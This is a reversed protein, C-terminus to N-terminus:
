FTPPNTNSSGQKFSIPRTGTMKRGKKSSSMQICVSHFGGGFPFMILIILCRCYKCNKSSCSPASAWCTGVFTLVAVAVLVVQEQCIASTMWGCGSIQTGANEHHPLWKFLKLLTTSVQSKRYPDFGESISVLFIQIGFEVLYGFRHVKPQHFCNQSGLRVKDKVPFDFYLCNPVVYKIFFLNNCAQSNM